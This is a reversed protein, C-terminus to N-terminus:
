LIMAGAFFSPGQPRFFQSFCDSLQLCEKVRYPKQLNYGCAEAQMVESERLSPPFSKLLCFIFSSM